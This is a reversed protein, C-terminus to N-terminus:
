LVWPVGINVIGHLTSSAQLGSWLSYLANSLMMLGFNMTEIPATAASTRPQAEPGSTCSLWLRGRRAFFALELPQAVPWTSVSSLAM